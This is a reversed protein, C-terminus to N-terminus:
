ERFFSLDKFLAHIYIDTYITSTIKEARPSLDKLDVDAMKATVTMNYPNYYQDIFQDINQQALKLKDNLPIELSKQLQDKIKGKLLWAAAQHLVNGTRISVNANPVSLIRTVKDFVPRGTMIIDGNFSGSTNVTISLDQGLPGFRVRNITIKKGGEEFTQGVADQGVLTDLFGYTFDMQLALRSTDRLKEKWIMIPLKPFLKTDPKSSSVVTKTQISIQGTTIGQKNKVGAMFATDPVMYMWGGYLEHLKYPTSMRRTVDMISNRLNFNSEIGQDIGEEIMPKVKNFVMNSITEIPLNAFGISLKPKKIWENSVLKTKLRMVWFTDISIESVFKLLVQGNANLDGLFTSKKFAIDTPLEVLIQRGIMEVNMNGSRKLKASADYDPFSWEEKFLSDVFYHFTDIVGKNYLAYNITIISKENIIRNYEIPVTNNSAVSNAMPKKTSCASFLMLFSALVLCRTSWAPNMFSKRFNPIFIIGNIAIARVM